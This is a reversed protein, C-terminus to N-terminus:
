APRLMSRSIAALHASGTLQMAHRLGTHLHSFFFSVGTAGAGIACIALPRGVAVLDAGLALYKFVDEGTRVGGDAIIIIRGKVAAAIEPLMTAAGPLADLVRGGHNSVVLARAGLEVALRADDPSLVGKIIFPLRTACILEALQAASKTEVQSTSAQMTALPASDIDIGVAALGAQEAERLRRLLADRDRLPKFIAIGWGDEGAVAQLNIRYQDPTARDGVCALTRSARCGRVIARVYDEESISGGMNTRMGTVPAAIVPLALQYGFLEATTDPEKVEHIVRSNVQWAGLATLNARFARNEGVGGMGPVQGRCWVGDCPECARCNSNLRLRAQQYIDKLSTVPAPGITVKVMALAQQVTQEAQARTAGVAIIHGLKDLNSKPPPFTMGEHYSLIVEKIGPIQRAEEVGTVSVIYGHPPIIARELAIRPAPAPFPRPDEGLALRIAGQIMNIGTALPYTHGSMFGGSLRAAIEGVMVGQPTIKIDGKAAGTTIELAAIGARMIARAAEQTEESLASPLTHGLEIFYPPLDIIRDAIGWLVPEGDRILVDISLEPGAMFQEVILEGSTACNKAHRYAPEVEEPRSVKMVGRAGMNDCPKIVAPFGLARFANQADSLTWVARFDPCPVGRERLRRRMKLKNTALEAAEYTIGSLGLAQAVAAVTMSADTGVTIVGDIHHRRHFDKAVRVHGEIDRTSMVLPYDALRMGIAEANYDTVVTHLGMERAIKIAPLQMVGAGVLLLTKTM